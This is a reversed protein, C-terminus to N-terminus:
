TCAASWPASRNRLPRHPSRVQVLFQSLEEHVCYKNYDSMNATDICFFPVSHLYQGYCHLAVEGQLHPSMKLLLLKYQEERRM